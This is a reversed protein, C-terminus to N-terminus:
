KKVVEYLYKVIETAVDIGTIRQVNKFEPSHNVEHVLLSNDNEMLDVGLIGGGMAEAAKLSLNRLEDDIDCKLPIGGRATNTRWDNENVRYIAAVVKDGIVTSRIDRNPKKIYEQIYYINYWPGMYRRDEFISKAADIDNIKAVLRAWSGMVPKLIVPFGLKEIVKLGAEETFTVYTKPTPINNKTLLLTCRVKDICNISTNFSNVVNSGYEELIKTIYLGRLTSICRQLFIDIDKYFSNELSTIDLFIKSSDIIELNINLKSAANIILKEDLRVRDVIMGIKL